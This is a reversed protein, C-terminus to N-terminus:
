RSKGVEKWSSQIECLELAKLLLQHLKQIADIKDRPSRANLTKYLKNRFLLDYLLGSNLISAPSAPTGPAVEVPAVFSDLIEVLRFVESCFEKPVFDVQKTAKRVDKRLNPIVKSISKFVLNEVEDKKSEEMDQLQQKLRDIAAIFKKGTDHKRLQPKYKMKQFEEMLLTIRMRPSPYEKSLDDIGKMTLLLNKLAFLFVPGVMRFAILDAVLEGLWKEITKSTLDVISAKIMEYSFFLDLTALGKKPKLKHSALSKAIKEIAKPDISIRNLLKQSIEEQSDIFHGLEHALLANLIVNEKQMLPFGIIAFNEAFKDLKKEVDPLVDKLAEKLPKMLEQYSYNYRYLPLLIFKSKPFNIAVDRILVVCGQPIYERSGTELIQFIAHFKYALLGLRTIRVMVQDVPEQVKGKKLVSKEISDLRKLIQKDIQLLLQVLEDSESFPYDKFQLEKLRKEHYSFAEKVTSFLSYILSGSDAM